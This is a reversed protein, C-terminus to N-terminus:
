DKDIIRVAGTDASSVMAAYAKLSPPIRRNRSSPKFSMIGKLEEDKRRKLFTEASVLANIVRRSIDIEIIDGDRLLAIEGGSAAEPSVHGISL